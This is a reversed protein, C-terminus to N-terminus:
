NKTEQQYIEQTLLAFTVLSDSTLIVSQPLLPEHKSQILVKAVPGHKTFILKPQIAIAANDLNIVQKNIPNVVPGAVLSYIPWKLLQRLTDLTNQYFSQCDSDDSINFTLLEQFTLHDITINGYSKTVKTLKFM